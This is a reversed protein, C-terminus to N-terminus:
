ARVVRNLWIPTPVGKVTVPGIPRLPVDLAADGAALTAEESVLLEGPGALASVRAAVNVARGILDEGRVVSEGHHLGMRVPLPFDGAARIEDIDELLAVSCRLGVTASAFWLMLGDGIEKVVRADGLDVLRDDVARRQRDIVGVARADGVAENYETFGVLDTFLISGTSVPPDVPTM